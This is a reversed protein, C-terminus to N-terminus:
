SKWLQYAVFFLTNFSFDIEFQGQENSMSGLVLDANKTCISVYPIPQKTTKDVVVAKTQSIMLQTSVILLIQAILIIKQKSSKM